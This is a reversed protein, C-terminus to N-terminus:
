SSKATLYEVMEVNANGLLACDLIGHSSADFANLKAGNQILLEACEIAQWVTGDTPKSGLACIHLATKGGDDPNTWEISGGHALASAVEWIDGKRAAEYLDRSFKELIEVETEGDSDKFHLFGKWLYKSKIWDERIKRDASDTPKQWGKQLALAGEWIPNVKENGLALLLRAEYVSISDLRLSRVKSVHVGLSRHVASCEICILVGLNVSAWDPCVVGCDACTPNASRIEQELPNQLAKSADVDVPEIVAEDGDTPALEPFNASPSREPPIRGKKKRAKGINKNLDESHPDGHVLQNEINERIGDVWTKYDHPGRAQLTLPKESPTVLEFCFRNGCAESDLERVTCLVVDCVKIRDSYPFENGGNARKLESDTRFYYVADKDMVFWRRSWPSLSIMASSKKYLWGELLVGPMSERQYRASQALVNPLDWIQSEEEIEELKLAQKDILKPDGNTIAEVAHSSAAVERSVTVLTETLAVEREQWTPVIVGAHNDRLEDQKEQIRNMEPIIGTWIDSCHSYCAKTSHATAMATEGLEFNRRHKISILHKMLQFRKLEASVQAARISDLSLRLNAAMTAKALNTDDTVLSSKSDTRGKRGWNKISNALGQKNKHESVNDGLGSGQRGARGNLHKSNAQEAANTHDEADQKLLSVTKLEAQAFAELSMGLTGELSDCMSRQANATEELVQKCVLIIIHTSDYCPCVLV